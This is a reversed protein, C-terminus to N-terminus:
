DEPDPDSAYVRIWAPREKARTVYAHTLEGFVGLQRSEGWILTHAIFIDAICFHDGCLWQRGDSLEFEVHKLARQYDYECSPFIDPIRRKKPYIFSHKAHVWIPPELETAGFAMWQHCCTQASLSGPWLKAQGYREALVYLIALSESINEVEGDSSSLALLPVKGKPNLRLFEPSRQEGEFLKLDRVEYTLGLEELAWIARGGRNTPGGYIVIQGLPDPLGSAETFSPRNPLEQPNM